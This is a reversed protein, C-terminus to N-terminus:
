GGLISAMAGEDLVLAGDVPLRCAPKRSGAPWWRSNPTMKESFTEGLSFIKQM